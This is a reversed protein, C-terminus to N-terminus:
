SSADVVAGIAGGVIINGFTMGNFSSQYNMTAAEFGEKACSVSIDNKSKGIKVSGPTSPVAGLVVGDRSITCSAGPPQTIVSVNQTTGEVITACGGLSIALASVIIIGRM